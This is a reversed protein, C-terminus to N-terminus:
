HDRPPAPTTLGAMLADPGSVSVVFVDANEFDFDVLGLDDDEDKERWGCRQPSGAVELAAMLHEVVRDRLAPWEPTGTPDLPGRADRIQVVMVQDRTDFWERTDVVIATVSPFLERLEHGIVSARRAAHWMVMADAATRVAEMEGVDGTMTKKVDQIYSALLRRDEDGEPVWRQVTIPRIEVGLCTAEGRAVLHRAHHEVAAPLTGQNAPDFVYSLDGDDFAVRYVTRTEQDLVVDWRDGTAPPRFTIHLKSVEVM